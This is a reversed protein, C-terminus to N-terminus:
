PIRIPYLVEGHLSSEDLKSPIPPRRQAGQGGRGEEDIEEREGGMENVMQKVLIVRIERTRMEGLALM